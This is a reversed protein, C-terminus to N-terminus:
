LPKGSTASEDIDITAEPIEVGRVLSVALRAAEITNRYIEMPDHSVWGRANVKQEHSLDARKLLEGAGDLLLAKTGSTSQDIALVYKM